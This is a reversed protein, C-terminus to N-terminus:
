AGQADADQTIGQDIDPMNAEAEEDERKLEEEVDPVIDDPMSDAILYRSFGANKLKVATDAYEALNMPKNRKHTITIKSSDLTAQNTNNWIVNMLDIRKYLGNDFDAEASSVVNEFDFLLRDIAAGSVTGSAMGESNFDPVHSQVHIQERLMKTMFEIFDKPIDKTLFTVDDKSQLNQFVRMQKLKNMMARTQKADKIGTLGEMTMKVLRLYAQAFRNFEVVSDSVIVDYDDILPIVPEILGLCEDGFYFPVVPPERYFNESEEKLEYVARASSKMIRTYVTAMASTYIEVRYQDKSIPYYRIAIVPAPDIDYNYLLIIERPDCVIFRPDAVEEKKGVYHLEYSYGFIGTNRGHRSTKIPENNRRFSDFLMKTYPDEKTDEGKYTIWKPRYAYGTFTTIIKRGYPVPSNNAPNGPTPNIRGVIAPNKGIYYEWLKNLRPLREAEHRQIWEEIEDTTLSEKNTKWYDM